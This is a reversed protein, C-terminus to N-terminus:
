RFEVGVTFAIWGDPLQQINTLHVPLGGGRPSRSSPTTEPTFANNSESPFPVGALHVLPATPGDFGHAERLVPGDPTVHWILLGPAPLNADFGKQRRNELLYYESGDPRVLVKYCESLSDEIPGLLLKQKVTPDIIAPKLWGMKEKAWAGLHQPRGEALPNSLACWVGLGRSGADEPRAALDPLGLLLSTLKTFGNLPTPRAGGEATVMYPWRKGNLQLAGAHPYYVAGRNTQYREGAYLFLIGDFDQLADKGDRTALRDLVENFLATKNTTGSGLIYDGRKKGAAVWAFVKGELTFVGGSQERFYDRLSNPVADSHKFLLDNWAANTANGQHKVDPFDIGIVALRFVDKKWPALVVVGKKGTTTVRKLPRSTATLTATVELPKEARELRLVVNSGPPAVQLWERFALPTRVAHGSVHTVVDGKQLGARAGPSDLQVEEVVLRGKSDHMVAAGLYGTQTGSSSEDTSIKTTLATAVTRYSTHDAAQGLPVTVVGLLFGLTRLHACCLAM